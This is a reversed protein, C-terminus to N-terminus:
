SRNQLAAPNEPVLAHGSVPGIGNSLKKMSINLSIQGSGFSNLFGSFNESFM